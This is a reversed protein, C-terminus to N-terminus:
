RAGKARPASCPRTREARRRVRSSAVRPRDAVAGDSWRGRSLPTAPRAAYRRLAARAPVGDPELPLAGAPARGRSTSLSNPWREATDGNDLKGTKVSKDEKDAKDGEAKDGQARDSAIENLSPSKATSPKAGGAADIM